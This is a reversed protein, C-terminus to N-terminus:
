STVVTFGGVGNGTFTYLLHGKYTVQLRTGVKKTGLGTVGLAVTKGVPMFLPPWVQLCSGSCSAATYLTKGVTANTTLVKKFKGRTAAVKVVVASTTAHVAPAPMTKASAAPIAVAVGLASATVAITLAGAVTRARRTSRDFLAM